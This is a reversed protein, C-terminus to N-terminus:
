EGSESCRVVSSSSDSDVIDPLEPSLPEVDDDVITEEDTAVETQLQSLQSTIIKQMDLEASGKKQVKEKLQLLKEKNFLMNHPTGNSASVAEESHFVASSADSVSSDSVSTWSSSQNQLITTASSSNVSLLSTDGAASMCEVRRNQLLSSLVSSASQGSIVLESVRSQCQVAPLAAQSTCSSSLSSQPTDILFIEGHGASASLNQESINPSSSVFPKLTVTHQSTSQPLVQPPRKAAPSTIQGTNSSSMSQPTDTLFAESRCVPSAVWRSISPSSEPHKSTVQHQPRSQESVQLPRKASPSAMHDICSSSLVSQLIDTLYAETHSVSAPVMQRAISPLSSELHKSTVTHQSVHHPSKAAQLAVQGSLHPVHASAAPLSVLGAHSIAATSMQRSTILEAIKGPTSALGVQRNNSAAGIVKQQASSEQERKVQRVQEYAQQKIKELIADRDSETGNVVKMPEQLRRSGAEPRMSQPNPVPSAQQAPLMQGCQVAATPCACSPNLGDTQQSYQRLQHMRQMSVPVSVPQQNQTVKPQYDSFVQGQVVASVDQPHHMFQLVATPSQNQLAAVQQPNQSRQQVVAISSRSQTPSLVHQLSQNMQQLCHPRPSAQAVNQSNQQASSVPFCSRTPSLFQWSGHSIDDVRVPSLLYPPSASFPVRRQQQQPSFPSMAQQQALSALYLSHSQYPQKSPTSGLQKVLAQMATVSGNDGGGSDVGPLSRPVAAEKQVTGGAHRETSVAHARHVPSLPVTAASQNPSVYLPVATARHQSPAPQLQTPSFLAGPPLLYANAAAVSQTVLPNIIGLSQVGQRQAVTTGFSQAIISALTNPVASTPLTKPVPHHLSTHVFSTSAAHHGAASTKSAASTVTVRQQTIPVTRPMASAQPQSHVHSLSQKSLDVTGHILKSTRPTLMVAATSSSAQPQGAQGSNMVIVPNQVAAVAIAAPQMSQVTIPLAQTVPILPPPPMSPAAKVQSAEKAPVPQSHQKLLQQVLSSVQTSVTSSFPQWNAPQVLHPLHPSAEQKMV